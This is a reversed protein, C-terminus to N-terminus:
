FHILIDQISKKNEVLIRRLNTNKKMNMKYLHIKIPTKTLNM